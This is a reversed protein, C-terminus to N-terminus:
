SGTTRYAPVVPGAGTSQEKLGCRVCVWGGRSESPTWEHQCRRQQAAVFLKRIGAMPQM